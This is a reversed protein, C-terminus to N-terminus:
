ILKPNVDNKEDDYRNLNKLAPGEIVNGRYDFRSAHCPCDWTKEASNFTLECGLHTCTIDVIYLKGDSDRYAGCRKGDVNVVKGEGKDVNFDTDGVKFKGKIYEKGVNLNETVFQTTLLSGTRTPKFINEYDSKRYCMLDKIIISALTGNSMGWKCFGTAVYVNDERKNVYGIYPMNDFSIYDQASWKYKFESVKFKEGLKTKLKEYIEEENKCQGVKHDGGGAIILKKGEGIYTKFTIGNEEVNLYMGRPIKEKYEGGLLYSREGKAKAFYFNLGDYWPFHSAMVINLASIIKHDKTKVKYINEKEYDVIPTHEYIKVGLKLCVKTLEDLYKKPNFQAQNFFEIAGKVEFPIDLTDHYKCKIGLNDCTSFEEKLEEIYNENDAYIYSSLREFSCEIKNDKIIEEILDIAKENGEYYLKASDLGYKDRIKSYIIGHQSTIKGTNRGSSGCGIKNTEVIATEIGKKSLLYATTLGVIGGGIILTDVELDEKLSEFDLGKSSLMWYSENM